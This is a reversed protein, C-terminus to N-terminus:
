GRVLSAVTGEVSRVAEEIRDLSPGGGQAFAASGGGSGGLVSAVQRAIEGASLGSERAKAGVFCVVRASNGVAFVSVYVLSPDSETCTSSRRSGPSSSWGKLGM